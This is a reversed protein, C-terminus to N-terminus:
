DYNKAINIAINSQLKNKQLVYFKAGVDSVLLNLSFLDKESYSLVQMLQPNYCKGSEESKMNVNLYQIGVFPVIKNNIKYGM